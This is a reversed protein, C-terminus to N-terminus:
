KTHFEFDIARRSQVIYFSHNKTNNRKTSSGGNSVTEITYEKDEEDTLCLKVRYDAKANRKGESFTPPEGNNFARISEIITTKGANNAGTMITLGSGEVNGDPLAFPITQEEGFGRFGVISLEKIM